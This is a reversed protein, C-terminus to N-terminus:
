PSGTQTEPKSEQAMIYGSVTISPRIQYGKQMRFANVALLDLTLFKEYNEIAALFQVLEDPVCNTEIRVSVKTLNDQVKKEKQIDKRVIEVGNREALDTLVKQLEAAAVNPNDGPLLGALDAQLRKRYDEIRAKYNEEQDLIEKERLLMTKKSRVENALEDRSPVFLIALYVIISIACVAAGAILFKRERSTIKV